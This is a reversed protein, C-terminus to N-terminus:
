VCKNVSTFVNTEEPESIEEDFGDMFGNLLSSDEVDLDHDVLPNDNDTIDMEAKMLAEKILDDERVDHLRRDKKTIISRKRAFSVEKKNKRKKSIKNLKADPLNKEEIRKTGM